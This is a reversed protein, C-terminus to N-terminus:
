VPKRRGKGVGPSSMLPCGCRGELCSIIPTKKLTFNFREVIGDTQLYPSTKIQHIGMIQCFERMNKSIFNAGNNTLIEEPVGMRATWDILCNVVTESTMNKLPFVKKAM